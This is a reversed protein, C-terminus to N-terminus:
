LPDVRFTKFAVDMFDTRIGAHGDASIPPTGGYRAGDDYASLLLAPAPEGERALYLDITVGGRQDARTAAAVTLWEGHPLLNPTSTSYRGPFIRKQAMTYYIGRYKKKIVATGDVRLGAYYLTDKDQYRTMILLGNSANRYPTATLNDAEIRMTAEVRADAFRKRSVLRFINQPHEGKETDRPNWRMYSLRWRSLYPATGTITRGLGNEVVLSGGASLWFYPSASVGMSSAEHLTGDSTFTYVFSAPSASTQLQPSAYAATAVIAGAVQPAVDAEPSSAALLSLHDMASLWMLATASLAAISAGTLLRHEPLRLRMVKPNM